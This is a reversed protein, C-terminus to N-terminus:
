KAASKKLLDVGYQEILLDSMIEYGELKLMAENLQRRLDEIERMLDSESVTKPKHQMSPLIIPKQEFTPLFKDKHRSVMKSIADRSMGYKESLMHTTKMGSLYERLILEKLKCHLGFNSLEM